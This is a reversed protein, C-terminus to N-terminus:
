TITFGCKMKALLNKRNRRKKKAASYGISCAEIILSLLYTRIFVM